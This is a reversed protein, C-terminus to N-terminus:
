ELTCTQALRGPSSDSMNSGEARWPLLAPGWRFAIDEYPPGAHFRLLCTSGYEDANPDKDLAYGPAEAQDLLEGYFINFKYGQVVQAPM